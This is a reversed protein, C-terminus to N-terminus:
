KKRVVRSGHEELVKAKAAKAEPSKKLGYMLDKVQKSTVKFNVIPRPYDGLALANYQQIELATFPRLEPIWKKVFIGEPDQDSLQKEPSYVRLTNIGVVGAQMQVQSWHIGPEYDYFLPALQKGVRQWPLQLGYIAYSLCMARMRFNLFGTTRLCRMCADILPEGTQGWLWAELRRETTAEDTFIPLTRYSPHLATHDLTPATEIRQIFHERWHLRSEFAQLSFLHKGEQPAYPGAKRRQRLELLKAQTKQYVYRSSICGWALFASLRSGHTFATNPSSISGSYKISRENLFDRLTYHAEKEGLPQLTGSYNHQRASEQIQAEVNTAVTRNLIGAEELTLFSKMNPPVSKVEARVYANWHVERETRSRLNRAVSYPQIEVFTVGHVKCWAHVEKDRQFTATGGHEQHAILTDFGMSRQLEALRDTVTGFLRLLPIHHKRYHEEISHLCQWVAYRHMPAMEYTNLLWPEWVYIPVFPIGQTALLHLVENDYLRLDRKHWYIAKKM